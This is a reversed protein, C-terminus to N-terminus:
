FVDVPIVADLIGILLAGIIAGLWTVAFGAVVFQTLYIIIVSVIFGTIGRGFPSADVKFIVQAFYDLLSIVIAALIAAWFGRVVFGPTFFSVVMLVIANVVLRIIVGMISHRGKVEKGM